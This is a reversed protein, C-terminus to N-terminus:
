RRTPPVRAAVVSVSTATQTVGAWELGAAEVLRRLEAVTRQRGGTMVLMAVDLVTARHTADSRLTELVFVTAVTERGAGAVARLIRVADKDSWDHLM